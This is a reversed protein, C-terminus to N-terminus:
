TFLWTGHGPPRSAITEQQINLPQHDNSSGVCLTLPIAYYYSQAVPATRPSRRCPTDVLIRAIHLPMLGLLARVSKQFFGLSTNCM